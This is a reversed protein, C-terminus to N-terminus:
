APKKLAELRKLFENRREQPISDSSFEGQWDAPRFEKVLARISVADQTEQHKSAMAAKLERDPYERAPRAPAASSTEQTAAPASPAAPTEAPKGAEPTAPTEAKKASAPRSRTTPVTATTAPLEHLKIGLLRAVEANAKDGAKSIHPDANEGEPASFIIEVRVKRTPAYQPDPYGQHKIADEVSVTGGTVIITM